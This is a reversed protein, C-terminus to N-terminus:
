YEIGAGDLITRLRAVEEQEEKYWRQYHEYQRKHYEADECRKSLTRVLDALAEFKDM